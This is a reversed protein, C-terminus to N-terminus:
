KQITRSLAGYTSPDMISPTKTVKSGDEQSSLKLENDIYQNLAEHIFAEKQSPELSRQSSTEPLQKSAASPSADLLSGQRHSLLTGKQTGKQRVEPEVSASRQDDPTAETEELVPTRTHDHKPRGTSDM